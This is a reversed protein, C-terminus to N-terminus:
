DFASMMLTCPLTTLYCKPLRIDEDDHTGECNNYVFDPPAIRIVTDANYSLIVKILDTPKPLGDVM